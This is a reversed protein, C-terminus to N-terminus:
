NSSPAGERWDLCDLWHSLFFKKEEPLFSVAKGVQRSLEPYVDALLLGNLRARERGQPSQKLLEKTETRLSVGAFRQEDYLPEGRIINELDRLLLPQVSEQEAMTGQYKALAQRTAESFRGTLYTSVGESPRKLKNLFARMDKIDATAIAASGRGIIPRLATTMQLAVLLFILMWINMGARSQAQVRAFAASLFRFGFGVAILGFLLHLVGMAAVSSTSQSFVWAVPAFGILLVATLALLGAVLGAIEGLGARSGGLCAFIYLSPLCILGSLLLSAAVKLPGAWLQDGMSFTGAVFGYILGCVAAILFLAVTLQGSGPQGLNFMVRRPERLLAQITAGLGGIPTQEQASLEAPPPAAGPAAPQPRLFYNSPDTPPRSIPTAVPVSPPIPPPNPNSPNISDNM